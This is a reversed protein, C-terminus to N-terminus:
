EEGKVVEPIETLDLGGTIWRFKVSLLDLVMRSYNRMTVFLRWNARTDQWSIALQAIQRDLLKALYLVEADFAYGNLRQSAFIEKAVEAKFMKFPCQTDVIRPDFLANFLRVFMRSTYARYSNARIPNLSYREGIVLDAEDNALIKHAEFFDSCSVPFDIDSYFIYKGRAVDVGRRVSFGKGFNRGNSILMVDQFSERIRRVVKDHYHNGTADNVVILEISLHKRIEPIKRLTAEVIEFSELFRPLIISVDINRGQDQKV